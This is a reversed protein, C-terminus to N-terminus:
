AARDMPHQRLGERATRIVRLVDARTLGDRALLLDVIPDDLLHEVQTRAAYPRAPTLTHESTM